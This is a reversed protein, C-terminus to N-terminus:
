RRRHLVGDPGWAWIDNSGSGALGWVASIDIVNTFAQETIPAWGDGPAGCAPLLTAAVAATIANRLNM